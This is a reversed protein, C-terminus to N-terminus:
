EEVAEPLPPIVFDESPKDPEEPKEPKDPEEPEDPKQPEPEPKPDERPGHMIREVLRVSNSKRLQVHYHPKDKIRVYVTREDDSGQYSDHPFEWIEPLELKSRRVRYTKDGSLSSSLVSRWVSQEFYHFRKSSGIYTLSKTSFGRTDQLHKLREPSKTTTCAPLLFVAALLGLWCGRSGSFTLARM